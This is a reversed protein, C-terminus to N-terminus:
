CSEWNSGAATPVRMPFYEVAMPKLVGSPQCDQLSSQNKSSDPFALSSCGFKTLQAFLKSSAYHRLGFAAQLQQIYDAPANNCEALLSASLVLSPARPGSSPTLLPAM